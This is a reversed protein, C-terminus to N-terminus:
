TEGVLLDFTSNGHLPAFTPDIRLFAPTGGTPLTFCRELQQVAADAKGLLMYAMAARYAMRGATVRDGQSELRRGFALLERIAREADERRGLGAYAVASAPLRLFDPAAGPPAAELALRLSDFTARAPEAGGRGHTWIAKAQYFELTDVISVANASALSLQEFKATYEGGVVPFLLYLDTPPQAIRRLAKAMVQRAATQDGRSFLLVGVKLLYGTPNDPFTAMVQEAAEAAEDFRRNM